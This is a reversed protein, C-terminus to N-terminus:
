RTDCEATFVRLTGTVKVGILQDAHEKHHGNEFLLDGKLQIDQPQLAPQSKELQKIFERSLKKSRNWSVTREKATKDEEKEFIFFEMAFDEYGQKRDEESRLSDMPKMLFLHYDTDHKDVESIDDLVFTRIEEEIGKAADIVVKTNLASTEFRLELEELDLAM